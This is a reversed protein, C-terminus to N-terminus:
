GSAYGESKTLDVKLAGSKIADGHKILDEVSPNKLVGNEIAAEPTSPKTNRHHVGSSDKFLHAGGDHRLNKVWESLTMRQSPDATSMVAKGDAGYSTIGGEEAKWGAAQSRAVVDAVATDRVGAGTAIQAVDTKFTAASAVSHSKENEEKLTVMEEELKAIKLQDGTKRIPPDPDQGNGAKKLAALEKLVTINTERFEGVTTQLEKIRPDEVVDLRFETGDAVYAAKLGDALAAHEAATLKNKMM